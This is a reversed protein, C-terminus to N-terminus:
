NEKGSWKWKMSNGSPKLSSKFPSLTAGQKEVTTMCTTGWCYYYPSLEIRQLMKMKEKRLVCSPVGRCDVIKGLIFLIFDAREGKHFGHVTTHTCPLFVPPNEGFHSINKEGEKKRIYAWLKQWTIYKYSVRDVVWTTPKVLIMTPQTQLKRHYVHLGPILKGLLV